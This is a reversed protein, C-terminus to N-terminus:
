AHPALFDLVVRAFAEPQEMEPLHGCGDLVKATAGPIARVYRPCVNVPIIADERGWVVLTPTAIAGLLAPLTHSRMYPKWLLRAAMERNWEAQAEDEPTWAKGYYRAYEEANSPQCFAQRFAEQNSHIFYDWVHGEEPQLGAPAVLVMKTFLGANMTAIEAALWGGLSSGIVPLPQALKLERVFWTIWAALDRVSAIWDPRGSQGFGPLSPVYVTFREALEAYARLWGPVGLESHLVLLPAGRGGRRLQIRLGAAEVFTETFADAQAANTAAPSATM